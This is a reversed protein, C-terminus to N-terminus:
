LATELRDAKQAVALFSPSWYPRVLAPWQSPRYRRPGRIWFLRTMELGCIELLRKLVTPCIWCTHETHVKIQNYKLIKLVQKFKFPNPTTILLEGDDELHRHMNTLFLGPNPLHEIIDGAIIVQFRRGLNMTEADDAQVNFGEAKMAVIAAEDIDVGLIEGAEKVLTHHLHQYRLHSIGRKTGSCGLDLATKGRVRERLISLRDNTVATPIDALPRYRKHSM